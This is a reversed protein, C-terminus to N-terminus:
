GTLGRLRGANRQDTATYATGTTTYHVGRTDVRRVITGLDKSAAAAAISVTGANAQWTSAVVAAPAAAAALERSIKECQDGLQQLGAALVKM